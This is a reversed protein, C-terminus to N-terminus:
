DRWCGSAAWRDHEAACALCLMYGLDARQQEIAQQCRACTYPDRPRYHRVGRAALAHRELAAAREREEEIQARDADDM